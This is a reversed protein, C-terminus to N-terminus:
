PSHLRKVWSAGAFRSPFCNNHTDSVFLKLIYSEHFLLACMTLVYWPVYPDFPVDILFEARAFFFGAAIFAIQTPHPENGSCRGNTNIRIIHQEVENDSFVCTCLRTGPTGGKYEGFDTFGPPYSSLVAKPFSKAAKVEDIYQTDWQPAFELHSDMQMFYTEGAHLKSAYYRAVAPGLADTDHLYLVRIHGMECYKKYKPDTCFVEIGNEDPPADSMKVQDRGAANKGIVELGTKCQRGDNGFCNQVVAGIFIKDPNEAQDFASRLTQALLHERFAALSIFISEDKRVGFISRGRYPEELPHLYAKALDFYAKILGAPEMKMKANRLNSSHLEAFFKNLQAIIGAMTPNKGSLTDQILTESNEIEAFPPLYPVSPGLGHIENKHVFDFNDQADVAAISDEKFTQRHRFLSKMKVPHSLDDPHSMVLFFSISLAAALMMLLAMFLPNSVFAFVRKDFSKKKKRSFRSM